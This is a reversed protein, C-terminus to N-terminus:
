VCDTGAQCASVHGSVASGADIFALPRYKKLADAVSAVEPRRSEAGPRTMVALEDMVIAVDEVFVSDPLDRQASLTVVRCGLIELAHLYDRHQDVARAVDIPERPVFSLECRALAPSVERTIATWM